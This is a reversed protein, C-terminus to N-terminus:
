PYDQALPTEPTQIARWLDGLIAKANTANHSIIAVFKQLGLALAYLAVCECYSSKGSGRPLCILYNEHATIAHTMEKLVDVGKPPPADDLLLGVCYTKVWEEITSEAANRRTWDIESFALDM